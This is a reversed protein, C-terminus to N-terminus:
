PRDRLSAPAAAKIIASGLTAARKVTQHRDLRRASPWVTAPTAPTVAQSSRAGSGPLCLFAATPHAIFVTAIGFLAIALGATVRGAGGKSVSALRRFGFSAAILGPLTGIGFAIMSTAGAVASGTLMATFLAAYVM